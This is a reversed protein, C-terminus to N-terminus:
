ALHRVIASLNLVVNKEKASTRSGNRMGAKLKVNGFGAGKRNQVALSYFRRFDSVVRQEKIMLATTQESTPARQLVFSFEIAHHRGGFALSHVLQHQGVHVPDSLSAM